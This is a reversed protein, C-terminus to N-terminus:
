FGRCVAISLKPNQALQVLSTRGFACAAAQPPLLVITIVPCFRYAATLSFGGSRFYGHTVHMMFWYAAASLLSSTAMPVISQSALASVSSPPLRRCPSLMSPYYPTLPTCQHSLSSAEFGVFRQAASLSIFALGVIFSDFISDKQIVRSRLLGSTM